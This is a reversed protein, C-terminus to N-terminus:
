RPTRRGLSYKKLIQHIYQRSVGFYNAIEQLSYRKEDYNVCGDKDFGQFYMEIILENRNNKKNPHTAYYDDINEQQTGAYLHSPECCHRHFCNRAHNINLTKGKDDKPIEGFTLRWATRHAKELSKYFFEGYRTRKNINGIWLRCGNDDPEAVLSWFREELTDNKDKISTHQNRYHGEKGKVIYNICRRSLKFLRCIEGQTHIGLKYVALIAANRDDRRQKAPTM